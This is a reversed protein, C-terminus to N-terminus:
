NTRKMGVFHVARLARVACVACCVSLSVSFYLVCRAARVARVACCVCGCMSLCLCVYRKGRGWSGEFCGIFM